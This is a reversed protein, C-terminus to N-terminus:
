CGKLFSESWKCMLPSAGVIELSRIIVDHNLLDFASSADLALLAVCKGKARHRHIADLVNGTADQTGRGPRFGFINNPLIHELHNLFQQRVVCELLKGLNGFLCVPRFNEIRNRPGSKHVPVIKGHKWIDPFIGESICRNFVLTIADLAEFKLEKILRNSISDPGFSSSPKISDIVKAVEDTSCPHIDWKPCDKFKKELQEFIDDPEPSVKLNNVKNRFHSAFAEALAQENPHSANLFSNQDSPKHSKLIKWVGGRTKRASNRAFNM